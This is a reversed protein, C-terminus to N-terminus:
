TGNGKMLAGLATRLDRKADDAATADGQFHGGRRLCLNVDSRKAVDFVSTVKFTCASLNEGWPDYQPHTSITTSGPHLATPDRAPPNADVPVNDFGAEAGPYVITAIDAGQARMKDALVICRSAPSLDDHEGAFIREPAYVKPLHVFEINCYPYFAFVARFRMEGSSSYHQRAEVTDSLLATTGEGAFGLLAIRRADIRPNSALFQLAGYADGITQSPQLVAFDSCAAPRLGRAAFNDITLTAYGWSTLTAQQWGEPIGAPGECMRPSMVVVAPFPGIGPPFELEGNLSTSGDASKFATQVPENPPALGNAQDEPNITVPGTSCAAFGALLFAFLWVMPEYDNSSRM